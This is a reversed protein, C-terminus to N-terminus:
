HNNKLQEIEKQQKEMKENLQIVHLTLEEIKKLLLVNMEKLEVGNKVVEQASPIEPLHKNTAIYQKLHDLPLLQYDNEFVYDAWGKESAFDVKVKETRIGDKVFLKYGTCNTCAVNSTGIGITGNKGYIWNNINLENSANTSSTTTSNGILINNSGSSLNAGAKEGIGINNNGNLLAELAKTGFASNSNGNNLNEMSAMGVATNSSIIDKAITNYRSLSAMGIATNNDMSGKGSMANLGLATNNTGTINYMLSNTGVATNNSGSTNERGANIGLTTNGGGTTNNVFAGLGVSLNATGTSTDNGGGLFLSNGWGFGNDINQFIIRGKPTLKMWETNNTKFILPQNDVTGIFSSTSTTAVNGRLNWYQASLSTTALTLALLINKKM